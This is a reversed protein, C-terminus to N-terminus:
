ESPCPIALNKRFYVRQFGDERKRGTEVFGLHPYLSLNSTMKENTYLVIADRKAMRAQEELFNIARRAYGRGLHSPAIAISELFLDGDRLYWVIYGVPQGDSVMIEIPTDALRSRFDFLMPAPERGIADVYQAYAERACNELFSLDASQAPQISFTDAM